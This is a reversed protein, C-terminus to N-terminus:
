DQVPKMGEPTDQHQKRLQYVGKPLTAEKVSGVQTDGHEVHYIKAGTRAALYGFVFIDEKVFYVDCNKVSHDHGGSGRMLITTTAKKVGRPITVPFNKQNPLLLLDGHRFVQINDKAKISGDM